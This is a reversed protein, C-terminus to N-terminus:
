EEMCFGFSVPGADYVSLEPGLTTIIAQLLRGLCTLVDGQTTASKLIFVLNKKHLNIQSNYAKRNVCLNKLVTPEM